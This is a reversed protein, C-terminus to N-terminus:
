MRKQRKGLVYRDFLFRVGDTTFSPGMLEAVMPWTFGSIFRLQLIMQIREDAFSNAFMRIATDGAQAQDELVDIRSKLDEIAIAINGVKDSIDTGHPMGDMRIAQTGAKEQLSELLDYARDLHEHLVLNNNLEQLPM